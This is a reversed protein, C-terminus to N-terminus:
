DYIMGDYSYDFIDILEKKYKSLFDNNEFMIDLLERNIIYLQDKLYLHFIKAMKASQCLIKRLEDSMNKSSLCRNLLGPYNWFIDSSVVKEELSMLLMTETSHGIKELGDIVDQITKFTERFKKLNMLLVGANLLKRNRELDFVVDTFSYFYLESIDIDYLSKLDSTVLLDIDLFLCKDLKPFFYPIFLKYYISSTWMDVYIDAAKEEFPTNDVYKIHVKSKIKSDEKLKDQIYNKTFSDCIVYLDIDNTSNSLLISKIMPVAFSKLYNLNTTDYTVITTFLNM